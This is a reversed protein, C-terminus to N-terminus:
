PRVASATADPPPTAPPPSRSARGLRMYLAIVGSAFAAYACWLSAFGDVALWAIVPLAVLNAVGFLVLLRNGSLLLAGCVAIIYLFTIPPGPGRDVCYDLRYHALTADVPGRVLAVLLTVAVVAGLAVFPAIEWRRPGVRELTFVALPVYVPLVVLAIVLYIWLAARGMGHPVEGQLGWWVFAEVVQHAGLILPISALAVHGPRHDVHRVADVGIAGVALGGVLDAQPAFCV